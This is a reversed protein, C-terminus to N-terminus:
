DELKSPKCGKKDATEVVGDETTVMLKCDSLQYKFDAKKGLYIGSAMCGNFYEGEMVIADGGSVGKFSLADTNTIEIQGAGKM